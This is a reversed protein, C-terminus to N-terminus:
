IYGSYRLGEMMKRGVAMSARSNEFQAVERGHNHIEWVAKPYPSMAGINFNDIDNFDTKSRRSDLPFHDNFDDIGDADSDCADGILNNDSDEQGPNAIDPCNDCEDGVGDNDMDNQVNLFVPAPNPTQPCSDLIDFVNDKDDDLDCVDGGM